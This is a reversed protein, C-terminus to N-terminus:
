LFDEFHPDLRRFLWYGLLLSVMSVASAIGLKSLDFSGYGLVLSRYAEAYFTFPHLDLFSQFREPMTSRAYLVPAAFMLLQMLQGIAQGLDRIFVQIASVIFALGLALAFMPVFLLVAPVIGLMNLPNGLLALVALIFLFGTMHLLFTAGVSAVVLVPRPIAVKGILAANEHVVTCARVVSESFAFWPWMAVALFALFTPPNEGPVTQKFIHVFAFAYVGLQILPQLIAWLGGSLSGAFRTRLERGLFEGVLVRKSSM